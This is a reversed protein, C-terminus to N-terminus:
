LDICNNGLLIAVSTSRYTSKKDEGTKNRSIGMRNTKNQFFPLSCFPGILCVRCFRNLGRCFVTSFESAIGTDSPRSLGHRTRGSSCHFWSRYLYCLSRIFLSVMVQLSLLAVGYGTFTASRGSSCHCWLRYLYCLSRIFLSVMVRLPLLAVQHVTVGYGIFIASHGSSCHCWLRYLYCLPRIFLSVM